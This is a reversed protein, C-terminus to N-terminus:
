REEDAMAHTITQTQAPRQRRLIEGALSLYSAAGRSYKDYHLVPLGHSPAEALRVNRPIVTKYVKDGFHEMLEATVELSLRNRPDYMTRLLGEIELGPNATKTLTQITQVLASLGELAYYECQMPILVSHAAVLANITLMNLSPPPDILIYDYQDKVLALAAKLRFERRDVTLLGIEATRLCCIIDVRPKCCARKSL